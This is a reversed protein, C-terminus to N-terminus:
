FNVLHSKHFSLCVQVDWEVSSLVGVAVDEDAGNILERLQLVANRQIDDLSDMSTAAHLHWAAVSRASVRPRPFKNGRKGLTMVSRNAFFFHDHTMRAQIRMALNDRDNIVRSDIGVNGVTGLVSGELATRSENRIAMALRRDSVSGRVM